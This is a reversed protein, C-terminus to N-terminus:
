CLRVILWLFGFLPLIEFVKVFAVHDYHPGTVEKPKRVVVLGSPTSNEWM